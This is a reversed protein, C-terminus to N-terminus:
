AAEPQPAIHKGGGGKETIKVAYQGGSPVPVIITVQM